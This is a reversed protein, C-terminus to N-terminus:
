EPGAEIRASHRSVDWAKKDQRTCRLAILLGHATLDLSVVRNHYLTARLILCTPDMSPAGLPGSCPHPLAWLLLRSTSPCAAHQSCLVSTPWGPHVAMPFRLSSAFPAHFDDLPHDRSGPLERTRGLKLWNSAALCAVESKM